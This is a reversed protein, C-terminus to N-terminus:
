DQTFPKFVAFSSLRGFGGIHLQGGDGSYDHYSMDGNDYADPTGFKGVLVDYDAADGLLYGCFGHPLNETEGEFHRTSFVVGRIRSEPTTGYVGIRVCDVKVGNLYLESDATITYGDGLADLVDAVTEPFPMEVGNITIDFDFCPSRAPIPTLTATPEPTQIETSQMFPTHNPPDAVAACAAPTLILLLATFILPVLNRTRM